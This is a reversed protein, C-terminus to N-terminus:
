KKKYFIKFVINLLYLRNILKFGMNKNSSSHIEEYYDDYKKKKDKKKEKELDTMLIQNIIYFVGLILKIVIEIYPHKEYYQTFWFVQFSLVLGIAGFFAYFFQNRYEDYLKKNKKITTYNKFIYYLYYIGVCLIMFEIISILDM